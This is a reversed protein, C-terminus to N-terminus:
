HNHLFVLYVVMVHGIAANGDQQKNRAAALKGTRGLCLCVAQKPMCAAAAAAITGVVVHDLYCIKM